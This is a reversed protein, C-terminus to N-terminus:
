GPTRDQREVPALIVTPADGIRSFRHRAGMERLTRDREERTVFWHFTQWDKGVLNTFFDRAPASVRIGFRREAGADHTANNPQSVEM